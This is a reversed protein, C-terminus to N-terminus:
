KNEAMAEQIHGMYRINMTCNLLRRRRGIEGDQCFSRKDNKKDGKHVVYLM